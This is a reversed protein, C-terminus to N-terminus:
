TIVSTLELANSTTTPHSRDSVQNQAPPGNHRVNGVRGVTNELSTHARTFMRRTFQIRPV